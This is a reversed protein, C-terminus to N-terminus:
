KRKNEVKKYNKLFSYRHNTHIAFIIHHSTKEISSQTKIQGLNYFYNCSKSKFHM